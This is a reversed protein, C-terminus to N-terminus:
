IVFIARKKRWRISLVLKWNYEDIIIYGFYKYMIVNVSTEVNCTKYKFEEVLMKKWLALLLERHVLEAVLMGVAILCALYVNINIGFNESREKM